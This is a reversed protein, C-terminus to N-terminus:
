GRSERRMRPKSPDTSRIAPSVSKEPTGAAVHWRLRAPIAQPEPKVLRAVDHLQVSVIRPDGESGDVIRILTDGVRHERVRGLTRPRDRFM